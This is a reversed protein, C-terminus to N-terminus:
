DPPKLEFGLVDLINWVNFVSLGEIDEKEKLFRSLQSRDIGTRKALNYGTIKKKNMVKQIAHDFREMIM